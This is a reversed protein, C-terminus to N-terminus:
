RGDTIRVILADCPLEAMIKKVTNRVLAGLFAGSGHTGLVVLDLDKERAYDHLLQGPTRFAILPHARKRITAGSPLPAM